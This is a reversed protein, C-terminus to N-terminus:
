FLKLESEPSIQNVWALSLDAANLKPFKSKLPVNNLKRSLLSIFLIFLTSSPLIFEV